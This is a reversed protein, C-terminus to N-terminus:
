REEEPQAPGGGARIGHREWAARVNSEQKKRREAQTPPLPNAGAPLRPEGIWRALDSGRVLWQHGPRTMLLRGARYLEVLRQPSVRFGPAARRVLRCAEALSYLKDPDIGVLNM